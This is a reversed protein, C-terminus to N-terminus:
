HCEERCVANKPRKPFSMLAPLILAASHSIENFTQLFSPIHVSGCLPSANLDPPSKTQLLYARHIKSLQSAVIYIFLYIFTHLGRPNVYTPTFYSLNSLCIFNTGCRNPLCSSKMHHSISPSMQFALFSCTLDM